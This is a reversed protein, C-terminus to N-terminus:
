FTLAERGFGHNRDHGRAVVGLAEEVSRNLADKSLVVLIELDDDNVIARGVVADRHKLGQLLTVRELKIALGVLPDASSEVM